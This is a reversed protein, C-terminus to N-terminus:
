APGGDRDLPRLGRDRTGQGLRGGRRVGRIPGHGRRWSPRGRWWRSPCGLRGWFNVGPVGRDGGCARDPWFRRTSFRNIKGRRGLLLFVLLLVLLLVMLVVLLLLLLLLLWLWLWLLLLLRLLLLWRM